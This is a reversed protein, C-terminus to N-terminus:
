EKDLRKAMIDAIKSDKARTFETDPPTHSDAITSGYENLIEAGICEWIFDLATGPLTCELTITSGDKLHIDVYPEKVNAAHSLYLISDVNVYYFKEVKAHDIYATRIRIYKSM